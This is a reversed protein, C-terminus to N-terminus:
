KVVHRWMAGRRNDNFNDSPFASYNQDAIDATVNTYSRSNPDFTYGAKAPTVVGSFGYDVSATYFGNADTAVSLGILNVDGLGSGGTTIKGSITYQLLTGVINIDDVYFFDNPGSMHSAARVQFNGVKNYDSLNVEAFRYINDDQGDIVTLVTHWSGDYVEVVATEGTEFDFAKWWFSLQHLAVVGTMNVTRAVVGNSDRLRLAYTGSHANGNNITDASGSLVWDGNWGGGGITGSEFGDWAITSDGCCDKVAHSLALVVSVIVILRRIM